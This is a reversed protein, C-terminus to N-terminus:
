VSGINLQYCNPFAFRSTVSHINKCLKFNLDEGYLSRQFPLAKGKVFSIFHDATHGSGNLWIALDEAVRSAGGGQSNAKSIIAVRM